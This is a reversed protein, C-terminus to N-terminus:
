PEDWPAGARTTFGPAPTFVPIRRKPWRTCGPVFLSPSVPNSNLDGFAYRADLYQYVSDAAMLMLAVAGLHIVNLQRWCDRLRRPWENRPAHFAYRLLCTVRAAVSCCDCHNMRIQSGPDVRNCDSFSSEVGFPWFYRPATAPASASDYQNRAVQGMSTHFVLHATEHQPHPTDISCDISADM